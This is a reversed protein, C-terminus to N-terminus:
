QARIKIHTCNIENREIFKINTCKIESLEMIKIYM